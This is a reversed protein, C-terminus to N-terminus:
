NLERDPNWITDPSQIDFSRDTGHIMPWMAPQVIQLIRADATGYVVLDTGPLEERIRDGDQKVVWRGGVVVKIGPLLRRICILFERAWSLAYNCPRIKFSAM